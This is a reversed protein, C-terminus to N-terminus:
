GIKQSYNWRSFRLEVWHNWVDDGWLDIRIWKILLYEDRPIMLKDSEKSIILWYKREWEGFPLNDISIFIILIM